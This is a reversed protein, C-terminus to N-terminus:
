DDVHRKHAWRELSEQLDYLGLATLPLGVALVAVVLISGM